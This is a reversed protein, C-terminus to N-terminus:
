QKPKWRKWIIYGIGGVVLLIGGMILLVDLEMELAQFATLWYNGFFYGLSLFTTVWFLAGSYAFLAFHRFELETTGATFGTLHRIGPVFYGIFLSWKGFHEFWGHARQFREETIGVWSGYHHIVYSGLTRGIIYSVTIGTISGALAAVATSTPHLEGRCILVGAIVMLTEEPVPLAIIGLALLIFLAISGYQLLWLSLANHEVVCEM